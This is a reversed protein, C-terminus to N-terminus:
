PHAEDSIQGVTDLSVRSSWFDGQNWQSAPLSDENLRPGERSKLSAVSLPLYQPICFSPCESEFLRERVQHAADFRSDGGSGLQDPSAGLGSPYGHFNVGCARFLNICPDPVM